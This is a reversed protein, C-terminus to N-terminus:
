EAPREPLPPLEGPFVMGEVDFSSGNDTMFLMASLGEYAGEGALDVQYALYKDGPSAYGHFTGQWAGAEGDIGALGVITAGQSDRYREWNHLTWMEGSIRPDGTEFRVTYAADRYGSRDEDAVATGLDTQTGYPATFSLVASADSGETESDTQALAVAFTGGLLALVVTGVLSLRLTRM